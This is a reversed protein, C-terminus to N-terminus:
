VRLLAAARRLPRVSVRRDLVQHDAREIEDLIGGYLQLALSICRRSTPHLLRIGLAATRYIERTRAIEFAMLRRFRADVVGAQLQEVTVGFADLDELPLYVRDRRLDEGVDRLFNTLQFAIGLDAAYPAAVALPVVPELVPLMQLGIVAASGHVYELLDDYTKYSSVILDMRMSRLFAEVHTGPIDWRAMTDRLAVAVDHQSSGDLASRGFADLADARQEPSLSSALDDVIEDCWRAFGYLAHVSPRKWAPLLRTALYYSRGYRANLRRCTAYAAELTVDSTV